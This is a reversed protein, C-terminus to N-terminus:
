AEAQVTESAASKPKRSRKARPTKEAADKATIATPVEASVPPSASAAARAAQGKRGLGLEKALKSRQAAYGPAVMPYDPKLGYRQRYAEPTLDRTSLHRRLSRYPKGDIMSVIYDPDALSKRVSVAPTFESSPEAQEQEPEAGPQSLGVLTAHSNKLFAHVDEPACRTNPNGLWATTLAVALEVTSHKEEM